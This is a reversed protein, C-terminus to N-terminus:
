CRSNNKEVLANTKNNARQMHTQQWLETKSCM